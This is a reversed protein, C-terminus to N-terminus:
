RTVEHVVARTLEDFFEAKVEEFPKGKKMDTLAKKGATNIRAKTVRARPKKRSRPLRPPLM